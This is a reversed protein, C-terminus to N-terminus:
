IAHENERKKERHIRFARDCAATKGIGAKIEKAADLDIDSVIAGSKKILNDIQEQWLYMTIKQVAKGYRRKQYEALEQASSYTFGDENKVLDSRINKFLGEICLSDYQRQLSLDDFKQFLQAVDNEELFIKNLDLIDWQRLHDHRALKTIVFDAKSIVKPKLLGFSEGAIPRTDTKFDLPIYDFVARSKDNIWNDESGNHVAVLHIPHSILENDFPISSKMVDIDTSTRNLGHNLIACSAGCIEIELETELMQDLEHLLRIMTLRDMKEPM